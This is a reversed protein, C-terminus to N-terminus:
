GATGGGPVPASVPGPSIEQDGLRTNKPKTKNIHKMKEEDLRADHQIKVFRARITHIETCDYDYKKRLGISTIFMLSPPPPCTGYYVAVLSVVGDVAVFLAVFARADEENMNMWPWFEGLRGGMGVM